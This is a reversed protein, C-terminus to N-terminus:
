GAFVHRRDADWEVGDVKRCGCANRSFNRRTSVAGAFDSSYAVFRM